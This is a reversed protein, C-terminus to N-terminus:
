VASSFSRPSLWVHSRSLFFRSTLRAISDHHLRHCPHKSTKEALKDFDAALRDMKDIHKGLNLRLDTVPNSTGEGVLSLLDGDKELEVLLALYDPDHSSSLNLTSDTM